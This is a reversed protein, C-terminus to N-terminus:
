AFTRSTRGNPSVSAYKSITPESIRSRSSYETFRASSGIFSPVPRNRWVDPNFYTQSGDASTPELITKEPTLGGAVIIKARSSAVRALQWDFTQGTGGRLGEVYTDLLFADVEYEDLRNLDSEDAIRIAKIIRIGRLRAMKKPTLRGHLQAYDLGCDEVISRIYDPKADVFLGVAAVFPPLSMRIARAREPELYRPSGPWFNFGVADAGARSVMVADTATMIGCIKVKVMMSRLRGSCGDRTM